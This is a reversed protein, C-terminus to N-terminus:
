CKKAKRTEHFSVLFKRSNVLIDVCTSDLGEKKLMDLYEPDGGLFRLADENKSLYQLNNSHSEVFMKSLDMISHVHEQDMRRFDNIRVITNLFKAFTAPTLKTKTFKPLIILLLELLKGQLILKQKNHKGEFQRELAISVNGILQLIMDITDYEFAEVTTVIQHLWLVMGFKQSLFEIKTTKVVLRNLIKLILLDIKRDSLPCNYCSLFMKLLPTNNMLKFDQDDNIGSLLFNMLFLRHEIHQVDSSHFLFFFEPVTSFTFGGKAVLSNSVVHYLKHLTNPLINGIEALFQTTISAPRPFVALDSSAIESIGHQVSDYLRIWIEKAM